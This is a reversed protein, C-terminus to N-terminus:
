LVARCQHWWFCSLLYVRPQLASSTPLFSPLRATLLSAAGWASLNCGRMGRLHVSACVAWAGQLSAKNSDLMDAMSPATWGSDPWLVTHLSALLARINDKKGAAWADIKPQLSSRLEVKGSKEAAESDDRARKEALQLLPLNGLAHTHTSPHRM